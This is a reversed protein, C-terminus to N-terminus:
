CDRRSPFDSSSLCTKKQISTSGRRVREFLDLLHQLFEEADQQGPGAFVSHGKGVLARISGPFTSRRDDDNSDGAQQGVRQRGPWGSGQKRELLAQRRQQLM